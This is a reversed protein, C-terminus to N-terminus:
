FVLRHPRLLKRLLLEVFSSSAASSAANSTLRRAIPPAVVDLTRLAGGIGISSKTEPSYTSLCHSGSRPSAIGISESSACPAAEFRLENSKTGKLRHVSLRCEKANPTSSYSLTRSKLLHQSLASPIPRGLKRFTSRSRLCVCVSLILLYISLCM